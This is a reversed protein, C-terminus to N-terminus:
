LSTFHYVWAGAGPGSWTCQASRCAGDGADTFDLVRWGLVTGSLTKWTVTLRPYFNWTQAIYFPVNLPAKNSVWQWGGGPTVYWSASNWSGNQCQMVIRENSNYPVGCERITNTVTVIQTQNSGSSPYLWLTDFGIAATTLSNAFVDTSATAIGVSHASVWGPNGSWSQQEFAQATGAGLVLTTVLGAAFAAIRRSNRSM